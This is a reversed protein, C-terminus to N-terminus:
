NPTSDRDPTGAFRLEAKGMSRRVWRVYPTIWGTLLSGMVCAGILAGRDEFTTPTDTQDVVWVLAVGFAPGVGLALSTPWRLVALVLSLTFTAGGALLFYPVWTAWLSDGVPM